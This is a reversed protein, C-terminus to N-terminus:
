YVSAPPWGKNGIEDEGVEKLQGQCDKESIAKLISGPVDTEPIVVEVVFNKEPETRIETLVNNLESLNSAKRGEGGFAEALKDFKWAPLANYPYVKDLLPDAYDVPPQRFPNPNVIKQEIGYIGNALVFVVTNHGYAHHDSVAQCTEHFAGDGVVVIARKDPQACKVGTAAPVSYGISLWAAQAIFGGQASIHVPQAGILPFGADVVMVDDGTLWDGVAAFFSDYGLQDSAARVVTPPQALRLGCLGCHEKNGTVRGLAETLQAIYADLDVAAYYKAGVLVGGRSALVTGDSRIDQNGTDKGITWAGIGILCGDEGVLEDIESNSMTVCGEFYPNDESIVSKSLASTVFRIQKDRDETHQNAAELLGLFADQLGHRQIEVGAWFISKPRSEILEMTAAVAEEVESVSVIADEGSVLEGVPAQCEARWSDESVELYVPRSETLLATLASDIQYPAQRANVIREAAATIPRFMHIDVNEYGTTHSYLLGANHEVATEKNTPAGNIVVVPVKETYSGATTNLATFPGVSYTLYIAGIGKKRAYADAAFGACIENPNGSIAIPSEADALITDLFPASYNGAVGFMRDLGLQELRTKLYGAVTTTSSM